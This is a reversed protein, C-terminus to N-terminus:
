FDFKNFCKYLFSEFHILFLRQIGIVSVFESDIRVNLILSRYMPSQTTIYRNLVTKGRPDGVGRM